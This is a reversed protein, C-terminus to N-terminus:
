YYRHRLVYFKADEKIENFRDNWTRPKRKKLFIGIRKVFLKDIELLEENLSRIDFKDVNRSRRVLTNIWKNDGENILKALEKKLRNLDNTEFLGTRLTM